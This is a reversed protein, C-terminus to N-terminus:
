SKFVADKCAVDYLGMAEYHVDRLDITRRGVKAIHQALNEEIEQFLDFDDRDWTQNQRMLQKMIKVTNLVHYWSDHKDNSDLWRKQAWLFEKERIAVMDDTSTEKSFSQEIM